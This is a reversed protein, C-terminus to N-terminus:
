FRQKVNVDRRVRRIDNDIRRVERALEDIAQILSKVVDYQSTQERAKRLISEAKSQAQWM